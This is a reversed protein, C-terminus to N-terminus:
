RQICVTLTFSLFARAIDSATLIVLKYNDDNTFWLLKRGASLTQLVGLLEQSLQPQASTLCGAAHKACSRDRPAEATGLPLKYVGM